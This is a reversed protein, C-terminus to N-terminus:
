TGHYEAERNGRVIYKFDDKEGYYLKILVYKFRGLDISVDEVADLKAQLSMTTTVTSQRNIQLSFLLFLM